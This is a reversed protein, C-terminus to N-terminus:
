SLIGKCSSCRSFREVQHKFSSFPYSVATRPEFLSMEM